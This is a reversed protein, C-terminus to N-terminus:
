DNCPACVNANVVPYSSFGDASTKYKPLIQENVQKAFAKAGDAAQVQNLIMSQLFKFLAINIEAGAPMTPIPARAYPMTTWYPEYWPDNFPKFKTSSMRTPMSSAAEQAINEPTHYFALLKLAADKVKTASWASQIWGGQCTGPHKAQPYPIVSVSFDQGFTMKPNDKLINPRAWPGGPYMAIKGQAFLSDVEAQGDTIVSPQVVKYKVALDQWFQAGTIFEPADTVCKTLDDSIIKGDNQIFFASFNECIAFGQSGGHMGWGYVGNKTLKQATTVFDDWYKPPASIGAAKFINMNWYLGRCDATIPLAFIKGDVYCTQLKGAFYDKLDLQVDKVFSDLDILYGGKALQPFSDSMESMDPPTGARAATVLKQDFSDFVPHQTEVYITPNAEMFKNIVVLNDKWRQTDPQLQSWYQVTTTRGAARTITPTVASAAAPATTAAGTATSAAGTAAPASAPASPAPASATTASPATQPAASPAPTALQASGTPAPSPQASPAGGGGCASLLGSTVLALGGTGVLKLYWRRSRRSTLADQIAM